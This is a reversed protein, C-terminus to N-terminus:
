THFDGNPALQLTVHGCVENSSPVTPPGLLVCIRADLADVAYSPYWVTVLHRALTM